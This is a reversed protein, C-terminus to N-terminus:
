TTVQDNSKSTNFIMFYSVFILVVPILLILTDPGSVAMKLGLMPNVNARAIHQGLFIYLYGAGIVFFLSGLWNIIGKRKPYQLTCRYGAYCSILSPTTALLLLWAMESNEAKMARNFYIFGYVLIVVGLVVFLLIGKQQKQEEM